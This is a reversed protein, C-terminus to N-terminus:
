KTPTFQAEPSSDNGYTENKSKLHRVFLRILEQTVNWTKPFSDRWEPCISRMAANGEFFVVSGSPLVAYDIGCFDVGIRRHIERLVHHNALPEALYAREEAVCAPNGSM